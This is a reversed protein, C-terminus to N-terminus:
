YEYEVKVYMKKDQFGYNFSQTQWKTSSHFTIIEKLLELTLEAPGFIKIM